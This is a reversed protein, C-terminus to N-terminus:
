KSSAYKCSSFLQQRSIKCVVYLLYKSLVNLLFFFYFNIEILRAYIKRRERNRLSTTKPSTQYLDETHQPWWHDLLCGFETTTGYRKSHHTSFFIQIRKLFICTEKNGQSWTIGIISMTWSYLQLHQTKEKFLPVKAYQEANIRMNKGKSSSM